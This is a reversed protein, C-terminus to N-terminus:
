SILHGKNACYQVICLNTHIQIENFKNKSNNFRNKTYIKPKEIFNPLVFIQM